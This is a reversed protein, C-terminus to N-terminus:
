AALPLWNRQRRVVAGVWGFGLLMLAWTAPEPVTAGPGVNELVVNDFAFQGENTSFAFCDGSSDCRYAFAMFSEAGPLFDSQYSNFHTTGGNGIAGLQYNIQWADGNAYIAVIGLLAPVAMPASDPSTVFAADFSLLNSKGGDIRGFSIYGDNLGVLYNTLNGIPCVGTLCAEPDAGNGLAGVLGATTPDIDSVQFYYGGQTVADGNIFFPLNPAYTTDVNEFDIVVAQANGSAVACFWAAVAISLYRKM